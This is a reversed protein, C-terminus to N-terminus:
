KRVARMFVQAEGNEQDFFLDIGCLAHDPLMETFINMFHNQYARAPDNCPFNIRLVPDMSFLRAIVNVKIGPFLEEAIKLVDVKGAESM